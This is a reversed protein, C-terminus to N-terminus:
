GVGAYANGEHRLIFLNSHGQFYITSYNTNSNM